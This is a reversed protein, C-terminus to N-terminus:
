LAGQGIAALAPMADEFTDYRPMFPLNYFINERPGVILIRKGCAIAYGAEVHRGGRTYTSGEPETFCVVLDCNRVDALDEGAWQAQDKQPAQVQGHGTDIGEHSGDLWRAAPVLGLARMTEAYGRFEERRSYRGALYVRIPKPM